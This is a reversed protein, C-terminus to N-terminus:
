MLSLANDFVKETVLGDFYNQAIKTAVFVITELTNEARNQVVDKISNISNMIIKSDEHIAIAINVGEVVVFFIVAIQIQGKFFLKLYCKRLRPSIASIWLQRIGVWSIRAMLKVQPSFEIGWKWRYAYRDCNNYILHYNEPIEDGNENRQNIRENIEEFIQGLCAESNRLNVDVGRKRAAKEENNIRFQDLKIPKPRGASDVEIIPLDCEDRRGSYLIYELPQRKVYAILGFVSARFLDNSPDLDPVNASIHYCRADSEYLVTHM